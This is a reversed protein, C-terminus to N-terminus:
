KDKLKLSTIKISFVTKPEFSYTKKTKISVVRCDDDFVVEHLSDILFKDYNDLDPRIIPKLIDLSKMISTEISDAKPIPLYYIADIEIYYVNNPDKILERTYDYQEKTMQKLFSTRYEKMKTEKPNYFHHGRGSRERVYNEPKGKVEFNYTTVKIDYKEIANKVYIPNNIKAEIKNNYIM